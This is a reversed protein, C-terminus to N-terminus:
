GLCIAGSLEFYNDGGPEPTMYGRATIGDAYGKHFIKTGRVQTITELIPFSTKPIEIEPYFDPIAMDDRTFLCSGDDFYIRHNVYTVPFPGSDEVRSICGIIFGDAEYVIEGDKAVLKLYVWGVQTTKSINWTEVTSEEAVRVENSCHYSGSVAATTSLLFTLGVSLIYGEREFIGWKYCVM